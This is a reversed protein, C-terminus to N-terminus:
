VAKGRTGYRVARVFQFLPDTGCIETRRLDHMHTTATNLGSSIGCSGLLGIQESLGKVTSNCKGYPYAFVRAAIGLRDQLVERSREMEDKAAEPPLTTLDPHSCTHAGVHMGGAIMEKVHDWSLLPRRYLGLQHDWRNVDGVCDSVLFITASFGYRRLIPYALHYTDLYGDDITIVVSRSPPLRYERRYRLYDELTLVHYGMWKLTAIQQQFRRIPLVFRSAREGPHGFAHYMLIPTGSLLSNWQARNPLAHQVGRWFAYRQLLHYGIDSGLLKNLLYGFGGLFHPPLDLVLLGRLILGITLRQENFRGLLVPLTAPHRSYIQVCGAGSQEADRTLESLGKGQYQCGSAEAVYVLSYGQQAFRYALEIDNCRPMTAFGGAEVLAARPVSMNGCFCDLWTPHQEGSNLRAYNRNWDNAFSRAFWEVQDPLSLSLQGIGIVRDREQHLQLHGAVFGPDPSIDDDLFILTNARAAEIGRNFAASQGQNSQWLVQLAYPTDLAALIEKTGDTSGDIVVVVEYDEPPQTQSCLAELCKRLREARNYTAIIISALPNSGLNSL